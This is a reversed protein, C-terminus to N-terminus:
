KFIVKIWRYGSIKVFFRKAMCKMVHNVRKETPFAGLAFVAAGLLAALVAYLRLAGYNAVYLAGCFIAGAGLGFIADCLLGLWTGACILRRVLGVCGYWAGILVGSAFMWLFIRHQGITQFLM